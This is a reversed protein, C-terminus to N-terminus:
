SNTFSYWSRNPPLLCAHSMGSASSVCPTCTLFLTIGQCRTTYRLAKSFRRTAASYLDVVKVKVNICGDMWGDM